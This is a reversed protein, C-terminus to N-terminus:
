FEQVTVPVTVNGAVSGAGLSGFTDTGWCQIIDSKNMACTHKFGAALARNGAQLQAVVVPSNRNILGGDGLQGYENNGWCMLGGEKMLACSHNHGLSLALVADSLGIVDVPTNRQELTGDGLQGKNNSGWCKVGGNELLACSHNGGVAIQVVGSDLGEVKVPNAVSTASALIGIEGLLNSGWCQVGFQDNLLCQHNEGLSVQLVGSTAGVVDGPTPALGRGWCNLGKNERVACTKSYRTVAWLVGSGLGSPVTAKFSHASTGDGLQGYFNSGFCMMAGVKTVVCTNRDGSSFSRLNETISPVSMPKSSFLVSVPDLGLSGVYNWGWCKVSDLQNRACTADTQTGVRSTADLAVLAKQAWLARLKADNAGRRQSVLPHTGKAAEVLPDTDKTVVVSGDPNETAGEQGFRCSISILAGTFFLAVTFKNLLVGQLSATM